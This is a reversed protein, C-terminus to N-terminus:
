IKVYTLIFNKIFIESGLSTEEYYDHFQAPQPAGQTLQLVAQHQHLIKYLYRQQQLGQPFCLMGPFFALKRVTTLEMERKISWLDYTKGM